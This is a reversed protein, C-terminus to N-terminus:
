EDIKSNQMVHAKNNYVRAHVHTDPEHSAPDVRVAIDGVLDVGRNGLERKKKEINESLSSSFIKNYTPFYRSCFVLILFDHPICHSSEIHTYSLFYSLFYTLFSEKSDCSSKLICDSTNAHM